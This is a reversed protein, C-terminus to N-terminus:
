WATQQDVGSQLPGKGDAQPPILEHAGGIGVLEAPRGLGIVLDQKLGKGGARYSPRAPEGEGIPSRQGFAGEILQSSATCRARAGAPRGALSEARPLVSGAALRFGAYSVVTVDNAMQLAVPLVRSASTPKGQDATPAGVPQPDCPQGSRSILATLDPEDTSASTSEPPEETIGFSGTLPVTCIRIGGSGPDEGDFQMSAHGIRRRRWRRRPQWERPLSSTM